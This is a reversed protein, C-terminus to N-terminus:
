RNHPFGQLSNLHHGGGAQQQIRGEAQVVGAAVMGLAGLPEIGNLLGKALPVQQLAAPAEGGPRDAVGFQQAAVALAIEVGHAPIPGTAAAFEGGAVRGDALVAFVHGPQDGAAHQHRHIPHQLAAQGIGEGGHAGRAVVGLRLPAHAEAQEVVHGQGGAMGLGHM